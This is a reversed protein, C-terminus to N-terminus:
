KELESLADEDAILVFNKHLQLVSAPVQPTVPGTFAQKVIGSKAKGSVLMLVCDAQMIAQVGMTYAQKPVSDYDAFFRSNAEITSATLNVCNTGTPFHEAPENFGIHGNLGLGLLQLDIGGQAAIIDDYDKCAKEADKELGNPVFTKSKDIDIHHFLNENMFYRYSQDNDPALGRYEDLNVTTVEAFSLEGGKYKEVLSQYAGIPTSGTALGLVSNPKLVLQAAIFNAGLRSMDDYNKAKIIRM